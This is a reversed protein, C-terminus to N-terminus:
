STTLSMDNISLDSANEPELDRCAFHVHQMPTPLPTTKNELMSVVTSMLPRCNPNDQVCLLGIHICRAVEDLPCTERLSSDVFDEIKGDKWLKWAYIILNSFEMYFHPSSIKLGSVIELLLVGFSYTDSKVSFVGGMVYEPSMYGYTGVVRDTNAEPQNGNFIRAMGFDSIKPSMEKDLLINSAKLDRHIITLRSDQHLYQIGRAIGQIIKFREPWQLVHKRTSDFLFYDLSKNPLYEYVLLKDDHHICCGLLKVLNKHQLNAILVVENRFEETGQGSGKSLRKVAVEKAGQLVGKYVKGFGGKGLMNSDSFNDTAAVIEEFSIFSFELNDAAKNMSRLYELMERKETKKKQLKGRYKCTWFLAISALLLLCAVVLLLVQLSTIKHRAQSGALRLYLYQGSGAAKGTDVLDGTWLLCGSAYALTGAASSMTVYAFATCSCNARCEAACEDFSRNGIHLFKDPVKMGPLTVFRDEMGCKLAESRRCGRSADLADIRDFGDLCRCSPAAETNDCYGFPGCSAYLDCGSSSPRQFGTIWKSASSNWTRLSVTGTHDFLVRTYPSGDPVTYTYYVEEGADVVVPTANGRGGGGCNFVSTESFFNIRYYPQTGRWVFFQLNSSPDISGSFDGPSPDDNSKWPVLRTAVQGKRSLVVKMSPLITATPHDFSQWIVTGNASRLVFNGSNLLVAVAGAGGGTSSSSVATSSAWFTHGNSDSLALQQNNTIALKASGGAPARNAIWVRNHEPINNYWIVIYLTKNSNDPSYFGLAFSGDKSILKDGPSLPKAQTLQDGHGSSQCSLSLLLLIFVPLLAVMEEGNTRLKEQASHLCAHLEWAGTEGYTGPLTASLQNACFLGLWPMIQYRLNMEKDKDLLIKRGKLNRHILHQHRYLIGRTLGQGQIIKCRRPQQLMPKRKSDNISFERIDGAERPEYDRLAFYIPQKPTPLPKIKNELMFVVASMHPRYSPSDQVCLLGIHICQSVEYLCCNEMISSDVFDEVKGDKWLNWAVRNTSAQLQDGCFIRAMGFDSIKPSMEKDLLIKSAKLDRHIITLRSDQHLYMIGRAVGQIIKFRTTWQLMSRRTSDFLFYDLSKNPLYEYVLLKEDEHISCGLLVVLNKHQLKAILAVENRFEETGQGSGKSLRKVAVEKTGELMGKYVKGFGGKGLMNCDSFNDTATVINEFSIFPFEINKGGAEDMSSLYELVKRKQIKRKQRKGRNKCTWVLVGSTFLLLCAIIPLLIKPLNSKSQVPFKGLRIYLNELYSAKEM